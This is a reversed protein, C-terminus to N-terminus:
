FPLKPQIDEHLKELEKKLGRRIEANMKIRLRMTDNEVALVHRKLRIVEVKTNHLEMEIENM